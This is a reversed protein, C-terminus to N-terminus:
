LFIYILPIIIRSPFRPCHFLLDGGENSLFRIKILGATRKPFVNGANWKLHIYIVSLWIKFKVDRGLRYNHYSEFQLRGGGRWFPALFHSHPKLPFLSTWATEPNFWNVERNYDFSSDIIVLERDIVSSCSRLDGFHKWPNIADEEEKCCCYFRWL